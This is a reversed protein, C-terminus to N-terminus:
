SRKPSRSRQRNRNADSRPQKGTKSKWVAFVLAVISLAVGILFTAGLAEHFWPADITKRGVFHAALGFGLVSIAVGIADFFAFQKWPVDAMGAGVGVWRGVVPVFRGIAVAWFGRKRIANEASAMMGAISPWRNEFARRARGRTRVGVFYLAHDLVSMLAFGYALLLPVSKGAEHALLMLFIWPWPVGGPDLLLAPVVAHYGYRNTWQLAQDSAWKLTQEM